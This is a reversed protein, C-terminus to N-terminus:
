TMKYRVWYGTYTKRTSDRIASGLYELLVREDEDSLGSGQMWVPSIESFVRLGVPPSPNFPAPNLSPSPVHRWTPPAVNNSAYHASLRVDQGRPHVPVHDLVQAQAQMPYQVEQGLPFCPQTMLANRHTWRAFLSM